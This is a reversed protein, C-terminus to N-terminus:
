INKSFPSFGRKQKTTIEIAPTGRQNKIIIEVDSLDEMGKDTPIAAYDVKKKGTKAIDVDGEKIICFVYSGDKAAYAAFPNETGSIYWSGSANIYQIKEGKASSGGSESGASKKATEFDAPTATEATQKNTLYFGKPYENKVSLSKNKVCGAALLLLLLLAIKSLNKM